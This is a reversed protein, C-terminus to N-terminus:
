RIQVLCLDMMQRVQSRFVEYVKRLFLVFKLEGSFENQSNNTRQHKQQERDEIVKNNVLNLINMNEISKQNANSSNTVSALMLITSMVESSVAETQKTELCGFM